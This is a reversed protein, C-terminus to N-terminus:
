KNSPNIWFHYLPRLLFLAILTTWWWPSVDILEPVLRALLFGLFLMALSLMKLDWYDLRKARQHLSKIWM